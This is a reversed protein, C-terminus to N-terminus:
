IIKFPIQTKREFAYLWVFKTNHKRERAAEVRIFANCLIVILTVCLGFIIWEAIFMSMYRTTQDLPYHPKTYQIVSYQLIRIFSQM